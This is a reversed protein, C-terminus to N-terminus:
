CRARAALFNSDCSGKRRIDDVAGDISVDGISRVDQGSAINGQRSEVLGVNTCEGSIYRAGPIRGDANRDAVVLDSVRYFSVDVASM